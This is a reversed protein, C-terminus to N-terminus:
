LLQISPIRVRDDGQRLLQGLSFGYSLVVQLTMEEEERLQQRCFSHCYLLALAILEVLPIHHRFDRFIPHLMQTLLHHLFIHPTLLHAITTSNIKLHELAEDVGVDEKELCLFSKERRRVDFDRRNRRILLLLLLRSLMLLIVAGIDISCCHWRVTLRQPIRWLLHLRRVAEGIRCCGTTHWM